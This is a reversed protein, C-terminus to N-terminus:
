KSKKTKSNSKKNNTKKKTTQNTKKSEVKKKAKQNTKKKTTTADDVAKIAKDLFNKKSKDKVQNKIVKLGGEIVDGFKEKKKDDKMIDNAQKKIEKVLDMNGIDGLFIIDYM